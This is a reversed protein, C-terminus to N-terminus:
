QRVVRQLPRWDGDIEPDVFLRVIEEAGAKGFRGILSGVFGRDPCEIEGVMVRLDLNVGGFLPPATRQGSTAARAATKRPATSRVTIAVIRGRITKSRWM